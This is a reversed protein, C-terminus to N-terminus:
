HPLCSQVGLGVLDAVLLVPWFVWCIMAPYTMEICFPAFVIDILFLILAVLPLALLVALLVVTLVPSVAWYVAVTAVAATPVFLGGCVLLVVRRQRSFAM